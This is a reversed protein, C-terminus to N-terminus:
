LSFTGVGKNKFVDLITKFEIQSSNLTSSVIRQYLTDINGIARQADTSTLDTGRLGLEVLILESATILNSVTILNHYHLADSFQDIQGGFIDNTLIDNFGILDKITPTDKISRSIGSVNRIFRYRRELVEFFNVSQITVTAMGTNGRQDTASATLVLEGYFDIVAQGSYTNGFNDRWIISDSIDGDIVDIATATLIIPSLREYARATPSTITIIPPDSDPSPEVVSFTITKKTTTLDPGYVSYASVQYTYEGLPLNQIDTLTPNDKPNQADTIDKWIPTSIDIDATVGINVSGLNEVVKQNPVIGTITLVPFDDEASHTWQVIDTKVIEVPNSKQADDYAILFIQVDFLAPYLNELSAEWAMSTISGNLATIGADFVNQVSGGLQDTAKIVVEYFGNVLRINGFTGALDIATKDYEVPLETTLTIFPDGLKQISVYLFAIQMNNTDLVRIGVGYNGADLTALNDQEGQTLNRIFSNDSTNFLAWAFTHTEPDTVTGLVSVTDENTIVQNTTPSIISIVPPADVITFSVSARRPYGFMDNFTAQYTYNGAKLSQLNQLPPNNVINNIDTIDQWVLSPVSNDDDNATASIDVKTKHQTIQQNATPTNITITPENDGVFFNVVKKSTLGGSNRISAQYTYRIGKPLRELRNVKGGSIVPMRGSNTLDRWVISSSIDGDAEDVATAMVGIRDGRSIIFQNDTPVDITLTPVSPEVVTITVQAHADNGANDRGRAEFTYTGKVLKRLDNRINATVAKEAQPDTVDHWAVTITGDATDTGTARLRIAVPGNRDVRENASPSIITIVPPTTDVVSFEVEKDSALGAANTSVVRYIYEGVALNQINTVTTKLVPNARDTFDYWKVTSSIDGDTNDEAVATLDVQTGAKEIKQGDNVGTINVSPPDGITFEFIRDYIRKPTLRNELSIILLEVDYRGNTLGTHTIAVSGGRAASTGQESGRMTSWAHTPGHKRVRAQVYYAIGAPVGAYTINNTVSTTGATLEANEKDSIAIIESVAMLRPQPKDPGGQTTSAPQEIPPGYRYWIQFGFDTNWYSQANFNFDFEENEAFTHKTNFLATVHYDHEARIEEETWLIQSFGSSPVTRWFDLYWRLRRNLPWMNVVDFEIIVLSTGVFAKATFNEIGGYVADEQPPNTIPYPLSM